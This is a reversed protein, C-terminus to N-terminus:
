PQLLRSYIQSVRHANSMWTHSRAWEIARMRRNSTPKLGNLTRTLADINGPEVYDELGGTIERLAPLDSAVVPIGLGQAMVSKMPTVTRCVLTDKRPVVFIDMVAYWKWIDDNSQRGVFIVNASVGLKMALTKLKPLEVGDGVILVTSELGHRLARILYDLGEYGVVSTVSGVIKGSPLGLEARLSDKAFERGILGEEIANPVVTIKDMSVGREHLQFKSIESLTIVASAANMCALEQARARLYFESKEPNASFEPKQKSLWTKELEGRIEYVWPIGLRRAAESVLLANNYDTTTHLINAEFKSAERVLEDVSVEFRQILSGPYTAPLLRKYEIETVTEEVGKPFRGVTIPYGLRTVARVSVNRRSLAELMAQSRLAYGSQTHPLSNTLYFLVRPESEQQSEWVFDPPERLLLEEAEAARSILKKESRTLSQYQSTDALSSLKSYNKLKFDQEIASFSSWHEPIMRQITEAAGSIRTQRLREIIKSIFQHRDEFAFRLSASVLLTGAKLRWFQESM